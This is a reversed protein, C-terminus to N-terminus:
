FTIFIFGVMLCPETFQLYVPKPVIGMEPSGRKVPIQHTLKDMLQDHLAPFIRSWRNDEDWRLKAILTSKNETIKKQNGFIKTKVKIVDQLRTKIINGFRRCSRIVTTCRPCRKVGIEDDAMNMHYTLGEVEIAHKCDPLYIFRCM